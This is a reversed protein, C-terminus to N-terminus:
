KKLFKNLERKQKKLKLYGEYAKTKQQSFGLGKCWFDNRLLSKCIRRWSPTLKKSELIYPSEDPIGEPYGRGKWWETFTYIKNLYHEKTVEPISNLFLMSFSEWTHGSPKTIRNYGNIAGSDNVYLAGSNAGNVRAVVKAWTEPEILHFLWLGRRQDDGYPQCIRQQHISLGAKHMLDYLHNHRRNLNKAHYTWIDETTFDYIPYVNFVSETVKTTYQKGDLMVKNKSSITRYRNLSEDTRIGVLCATTKGDSYWEGFEPVFEEFEMGKSFFPFYNVDSISEKPLKRIWDDKRENDWCMWFPEYVSVANRLHLPLCVWYLDIYESYEKICEKIHDITLKYQGELDVILLGIKQNRKKAEDMVIHLMVTSDKGASFSLYVKEFNDFTWKVRLVSEEYVNTKLRFKPM